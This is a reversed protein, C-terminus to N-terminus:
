FLGPGFSYSPACGKSLRASAFCYFLTGPVKNDRQLDTGSLVVLVNISQLEIGGDRQAFDEFLPAILDFYGADDSNWAEFVVRGVAQLPKGVEYAPAEFIGIVNTMHPRGDGVVSRLCTFKRDSIPREGAETWRITRHENRYLM